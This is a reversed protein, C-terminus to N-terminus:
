RDSSSGPVPSPSRAVDDPITVSSEDSVALEWQARWAPPTPVGPAPTTQLASETFYGASGMHMPTFAHPASVAEIRETRGVLEDAISITDGGFRITRRIRVPGEAATTVLRRVIVRRLFEAVPRIRFVSLNLVRLILFKLPTLAERSVSAFPAECELTDGNIATLAGRGGGQSSFRRGDIVAVLGADQYLLRAAPGRSYVRLIGGRAASAIAYYRSRGAVAIRADPFVHMGEHVDCPLSSAPSAPGSAREATHGAADLYSSVLLALNEADCSAPTLVTGSPLGPLLFQALARADPLVGRLAELGGPFYLSTHRSGYPGGFSRDPHAAYRLFALSRGLADLLGADHTRHWVQALYWIGLTEYGPDPGGYEAFWGDASQHALVGAVTAECRQRFEPVGLMRHADLWALAFLAQHNSIFAYDEASVTAFRCAREVTEHVRAVDTRNLAPGMTELTRALVHVMALTVGHDLANPAVSEFGGNRRQRDCTYRLALAIWERVRESQHYPNGPFPHRWLQALPLMGAQFMTIPFDRFAWAWHSRDFCGAARSDSERDLMSLLRPAAALAHDLYVRPGRGITREATPDRAVENGDARAGEAARTM